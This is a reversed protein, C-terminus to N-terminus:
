ALNLNMKFNRIAQDMQDALIISSAVAIGYIKQDTLLPLDDHRIGGIGIVPIETSEALLRIGPAGLVPSLDKKTSTFRFPGAGIYNVKMHTLREADAVTNATGGIIMQDGLIKRASVPDMDNKGLHVGDANIRFAIEPHDNIILRVNYRTTIKRAERANKEIESLSREKMRLQIWDIGAACAEEIVEPLSKFPHDCTILHLKSIEFGKMCKEM